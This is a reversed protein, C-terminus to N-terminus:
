IMKNTVALHTCSIMHKILFNHCHLGHSKWKSETLPVLACGPCSWTERWQKCLESNFKEKCMQGREWTTKWLEKNKFIVIRVHVPLLCAHVATILHRAWLRGQFVLSFCNKRHASSDTTDRAGLKTHRPSIWRCYSHIHAGPCGPMTQSPPWHDPCIFNVLNLVTLEPLFAHLYFQPFSGLVNTNQWQMFGWGAPFTSPHDVHHPPWDPENMAVGLHHRSRHRLQWPLLLPPWRHGLAHTGKGLCM